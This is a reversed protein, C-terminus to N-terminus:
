INTLIPILYAGIHCIINGQPQRTTAKKPFFTIFETSYRNSGKQDPRTRCLGRMGCLSAVSPVLTSHYTTLSSICFYFFTSFQPPAFHWFRPQGYPAFSVAHHSTAVTKQWLWLNYKYRNLFFMLIIWWELIEGYLVPTIHHKLTSM